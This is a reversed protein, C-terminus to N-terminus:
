CPKAGSVRGQYLNLRMKLHITGLQTVCSWFFFNLLREEVLGHTVSLIVIALARALPRIRMIVGVLEHQM